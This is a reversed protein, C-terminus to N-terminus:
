SLPVVTAEINLISIERFVLHSLKTLKGFDPCMYESMFYITIAKNQTLLNITCKHYFIDISSIADYRTNHASKLKLYYDLM